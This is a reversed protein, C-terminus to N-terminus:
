SSIKKGIILNKPLPVAGIKVYYSGEFSLYNAISMSLEFYQKNQIYHDLFSFSAVDFLEGFLKFKEWMTPIFLM